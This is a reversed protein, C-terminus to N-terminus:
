KENSHIKINMATIGFTTGNFIISRLTSYINTKHIRYWFILM